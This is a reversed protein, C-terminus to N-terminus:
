YMGLVLKFSGKVYYLFYKFKTIRDIACLDAWHIRALFWKKNLPANYHVKIETEVKNKSKKEIWILKQKKKISM